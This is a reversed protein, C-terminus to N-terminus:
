GELPICLTHFLCILISGNPLENEIICRRKFYKDVMVVRINALGNLTFNKFHGVHMTHLPFKITESQGNYDECMLLVAHNNAIQIHCRFM